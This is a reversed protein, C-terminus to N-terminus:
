GYVHDSGKFEIPEDQAHLLRHKWEDISYQLRMIVNDLEWPHLNNEEQYKMIREELDDVITNILDVRLVPTLCEEKKEEKDM